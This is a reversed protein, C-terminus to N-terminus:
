KQIESRNEKEEKSNDDSLQLSCITTTPTICILQDANLPIEKERQKVTDSLAIALTFLM